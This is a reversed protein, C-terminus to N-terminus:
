NVSRWSLNYEVGDWTVTVEVVHSCLNGDRWFLSARAPDTFRDPDDNPLSQIPQCFDLADQLLQTAQAALEEGTFRRCQGPPLDIVVENNTTDDSSRFVTLTALCKTSNLIEVRHLAGLGLQPLPEQALLHPIFLGAPIVVSLVLLTTLISRFKKNM